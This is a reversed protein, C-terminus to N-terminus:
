EAAFIYKRLRMYMYKCKDISGTLACVNAVRRHLSSIHPSLAASLLPFRLHRPRTQKGRSLRVTRTDEAIRRRDEIYSRRLYEHYPNLIVCSFSLLSTPSSEGAKRALVQLGSKEKPARIGAEKKKKGGTLKRTKVTIRKEV